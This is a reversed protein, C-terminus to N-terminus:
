DFFCVLPKIAGAAEFLCVFFCVVVINKNVRNARDKLVFSVAEALKRAIESDKGGDGERM